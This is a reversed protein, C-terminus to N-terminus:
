KWDLFLKGLNTLSGTKNILGQRPKNKTYDDVLKLLQLATSRSHLKRKRFYKNPFIWKFTKLIFKFIKNQIQIYTKASDLLDMKADEGIAKYYYIGKIEPIKLLSSFMLKMIYCTKKMDFPNINGAETIFINNNFSIRRIEEAQKEISNNTTYRGVYPYFHLNCIDPIEDEKLLSLFRNMYESTSTIPVGIYKMVKLVSKPLGEFIWLGGNMILADPWKSKIYNRWTVYLSAYLKPSVYPFLNPENTIEFIIPSHKFNKVQDDLLVKEKEFQDSLIKEKQKDAKFHFDILMDTFSINKHEAYEGLFSNDIKGVTIFDAEPGYKSVRYPKGTLPHYGYTKLKSM